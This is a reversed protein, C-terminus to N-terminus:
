GNEDSKRRGYSCFDQHCLMDRGNCQIFDISIEGNSLPNPKGIDCEGCCVVERLEGREIRRLLKITQEYGEGMYVPIRAATLFPEQARLRSHADVMITALQGAYRQLDTMNREYGAGPFQQMIGSYGIEGLSAILEARYVRDQETIGNYINKREEPSLYSLFLRCNEETTAIPTMSM